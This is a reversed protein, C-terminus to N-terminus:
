SDGETHRFRRRSAQAGSCTIFAVRYRPTHRDESVFTAAEAKAQALLLHDFPDRHHMPLTSLAMLHDTGINLVTFGDRAVASLIKGIEVRLTGIRSKLTIVFCALTLEV